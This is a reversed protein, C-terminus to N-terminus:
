ATTVPAACRMTNGVRTSIDVMSNIVLHVIAATSIRGCDRKSPAVNGSSLAV